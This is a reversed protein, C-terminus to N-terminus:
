PKRRRRAPTRDRGEALARETRQMEASIEVEERIARSHEADVRLGEAKQRDAEGKRREAEARIFGRRRARSARGSHQAMM